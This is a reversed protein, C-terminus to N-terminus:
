LVLVTALLGGCGVLGGCSCFGIWFGVVFRNIFGLWCGVVDGTVLVVVVICGVGLLVVISVWVGVLGGFSGLNCGFGTVFVVGGLGM